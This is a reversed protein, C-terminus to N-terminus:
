AAGEGAGAAGWLLDVIIGRVYRSRAIEGNSDSM